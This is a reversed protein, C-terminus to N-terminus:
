SKQHVSFLSTIYEDFKFSKPSLNLISTHTFLGVEGSDISDTESDSNVVGSPVINHNATIVHRVSINGRINKKRGPDSHM